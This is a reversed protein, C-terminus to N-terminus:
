HRSLELAENSSVTRQRHTMVAAVTAEAPIWMIFTFIRYNYFHFYILSSNRILQEIEDIRFEAM